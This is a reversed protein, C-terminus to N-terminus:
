SVKEDSNKRFLKRFQGFLTRSNPAANQPLMDALLTDTNDLDDKEPRLLIGEPRIEIAVRPAQQLTGRVNQPLQIRGEDDVQPSTQESMDQGLAGDRLTLVRDAYQAMKMDHTVMLITLGYRERLTMLLDMVASASAKDLAGTPEDALLLRPQNALAVAMAVRQQQGGSLQGPKKDAHASLGVSELLEKARKRRHLPSVGALMMPLTVNALATRHFLLNKGVEQWVFGIINAPTEGNCRRLRALSN